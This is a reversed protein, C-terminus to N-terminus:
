EHGHAEILGVVRAVVEEITLASTDIEVADDAKKLPRLPRTMDDHDRAHLDQRVQEYSTKIGRSKLEQYRRQARIDESATLFVKVEADPFVYTGIDRGEMVVDAHRALEREIILIFDRVCEYRAVAASNKDARSSRIEWSVDHGNLTVTNLRGDQEAGIPTRLEIHPPSVTLHRCVATEDSISVRSSHCYIGIARFLAGTDVYTMGLAEATKRAVTGKGVAIPGDIAVRM